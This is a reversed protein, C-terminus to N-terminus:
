HNLGSNQNFLVKETSFLFMPIFNGKDENIVVIDLGNEM